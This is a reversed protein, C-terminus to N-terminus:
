EDKNVEYSYTHTKILVNGGNYIKKETKLNRSDYVYTSKKLLVNNADYEIETTKDGKANYANVVKSVLKGSGNYEAEEIKNGEEDYKFITKKRISGDSNYKIESTVNGSKDFGTYSDKLSKNKGGEVSIVSETVSKLNLKKVSKKKQSYATQISLFLFINLFIIFHKKKM